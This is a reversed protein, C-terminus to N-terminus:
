TPKPMVCSVNYSKRTREWNMFIRRRAVGSARSATGARRFVRHWLRGQGKCRMVWAIRSCQVQRVAGASMGADWMEVAKAVM